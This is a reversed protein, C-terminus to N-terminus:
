LQVLKLNDCNKPQFFVDRELCRAELNYGSHDGKGKKRPKPNQLIRTEAYMVMYKPTTHEHIM